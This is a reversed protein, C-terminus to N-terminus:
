RAAGTRNSAAAFPGEHRRAGQFHTRVPQSTLFFDDGADARALLFNDNVNFPIRLDPLTQASGTRVMIGTGLLALWVLLYVNQAM